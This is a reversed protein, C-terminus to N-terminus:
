FQFRVDTFLSFLTKGGYIDRLGQGPTLGAAGATISFNETLPPRYRVGISYDYGISHHINEQFLLLELPDTRMFQLYNVNVFGRLKPTLDLNTGANVLFIGPNVFNSQGEYKSSRLDPLISNPPTLLVGSGTLRIGERNWLSFIGGAFEPFDDISDFGRARGSRPDGSGSSYLGSVKFRAWDKDISLEAAAFQANITVPRNAIPNFSDNGFAQYFAHTLNLRGIHGDGTWGLYVAHISHPRVMGGSVVGGIPAPRVLFGNDDYHITAQDINYHVSFQATYGPVLFDQRYVNALILQQYRLAMSNLDSNTNKELFNFYALNYQWRNSSYNGFFRVGPQQDVFLFGRFDSNFEQIGARVSVFDFNPSLDKLKVEAFAEQLGIHSDLRTTGKRVDINVVGLERVDLYNLSIVPTVRIRWDVPRFSADGHFLDFSFLFVQDLFLQEGKGFFGPEGPRATSINSPTPLRRGDLFTDSVGTLDFFTQQGFVPSDGKLKNRDFPDFRHSKVYPRENGIGYRNWDPLTVAWRDPEPVFVKGAPPLPPTEPTEPVAPQGEELRQLVGPYPSAPPPPAAAPTAPAAKVQPMEPINQLPPAVPATMTLKIDRDLVQGPGVSIDAETYSDYGDHAIKLEYHGPPLDVLRFVGDASATQERAEGTDLNRLSVTAGVVAHGSTDRITGEIAGTRIPKAQPLRQQPASQSQAQPTQIVAAPAM